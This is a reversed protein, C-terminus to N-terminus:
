QYKLFHVPIFVRNMHRSNLTESIFCGTSLNGFDLMEQLDINTVCLCTKLSSWRCKFSIFSGQIFYIKNDTNQNGKQWEKWTCINLFGIALISDINKNYVKWKWKDYLEHLMKLWLHQVQLYGAFDSIQVASIAM